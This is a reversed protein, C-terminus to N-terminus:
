NPYKIKILFRQKPFYIGREQAEQVLTLCIQYPDGVGDGPIWLGGVLDDVHLLPYLDQIEKPSVLYCEIDCSRPYILLILIYHNSYYVARKYINQSYVYIM